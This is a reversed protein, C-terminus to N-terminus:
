GDFFALIKKLVGWDNFMNVIFLKCEELIIKCVLDIKDEFKNASMIVQKLKLWLSRFEFGKKMENSKEEELLNKATNQGSNTVDVEEVHKNSISGKNTKKQKKKKSSHQIPVSVTETNVEQEKDSFIDDSSEERHILAVTNVSETRINNTFAQTGSTSNSIKANKALYMQLAKRYTVSEENMLNRIQKEKIFMPCKKDIAMHPGKCNPCKFIEIECNDHNLGCKPCIIKNLPCFKKTHGFKWCASCQTVPFVYNEVALRCGYAYVYTPIIQAKFGVRVTESDEWKGESTSRKLRRVSIIECPCKLTDQIDKDSYELEIGRIVGYCINVEDAFQCRMDLEMIKTNTILKEAQEKKDFKILVKYPSRYKINTINQINLDRLLKAMGMQKPLVKLSTICVEFKDQESTSDRRLVRKPKSRIVTTFGEESYESEEGEERPRKEAKGKIVSDSVMAGSNTMEVETLDESTIVGVDNEEEEFIDSINM